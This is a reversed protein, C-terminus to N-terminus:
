VNNVERRSQGSGSESVTRFGIGEAASVNAKGEIYDYRLNEAYHDAGHRRRETDHSSSDHLRMKLLDYDEKNM